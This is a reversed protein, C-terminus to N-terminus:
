DNYNLIGYKEDFFMFISKLVAIIPTSIAMGIIGFFYGFVLLGIIITVPHLKTTKSMILPQFFNGEIFQILAIVILTFIGIMPGQSFGVIVAPAGGIYPGAYPIINTIGCFLGFLLPAKLGVLWLGLSSVIFILLCDLVAGQVFHRLSTNIDNFLDRTDTQMKKPLLTIVMDGANDFSMLLYFGIILGIVFSSAGSFFSSVFNVTMEPLSSTLNNGFEEIKKFLEAKVALADFSGLNNLQHFIQDIWNQVTHFVSPITKVFDNIQNSLVPIITGIVLVLGGILLIYTILTGLGRHIGKKKLWKVFPDFLWAIFLGIFLPFITKLVVLITSKLNLEKFLMTIIYVALIVILVYVIRLIRQSIRIVENLKGYDVTQDKQKDKRQFM